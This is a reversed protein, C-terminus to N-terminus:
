ESGLNHHIHFDVLISLNFAIPVTRQYNLELSKVGKQGLKLTLAKDVDVVDGVDDISMIKRLQAIAQKRGASLGDPQEVLVTVANKVRYHDYYIPYMQVVILFCFLLTVVIWVLPLWGMGYQARDKKGLNARVMLYRSVNNSM